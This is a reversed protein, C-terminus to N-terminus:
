FVTAVLDKEAITEKLTAAFWKRWTTNWFPGAHNAMRHAETLHGRKRLAEATLIAMWVQYSNPLDSLERYSAILEEPSNHEMLYLVSSVFRGFIEEWSDYSAIRLDSENVPIDDSGFGVAELDKWHREYVHLSNSLHTYSGVEVGLWGAVIEQLTTFQIVNYPFGWFLDNSRMVQLWDLKNDRVILHSVLNCPVDKSKPTPDPMDLQGDWIQLVVQRSSPSHLLANYAMKLQDLSVHSTPGHRLKRAATPNLKPQSGLRYGYAGCLKVGDDSFHRMRPNWFQLFSLDNSGALIWIVEAIAFAPNIPRAFVVRQRPNTITVAVHLLEKTPQIRGEQLSGTSKVKHALNRWATDANPAEVSIM